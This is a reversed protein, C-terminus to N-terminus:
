VLPALAPATVNEPKVTPDLVPEAKDVVFVCLNMMEIRRMLLTAVYLM